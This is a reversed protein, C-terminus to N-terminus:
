RNGHMSSKRTHTQSGLYYPAFHLHHEGKLFSFILVISTLLLIKRRKTYIRQTIVAFPCPNREWGCTIRTSGKVIIRQNLRSERLSLVWM